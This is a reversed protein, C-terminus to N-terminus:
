TMVTIVICYDGNDKMELVAAVSVTDGGIRYTVTAKWDGYPTLHAPESVTGKRLCEVVQNLSVKRQRMRKVAHPMAVIRSTDAAALRLRKLFNADNLIFPLPTTM